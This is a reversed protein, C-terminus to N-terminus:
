ARFTERHTPENRKNMWPTTNLMSCVIYAVLKMEDRPFNPLIEGLVLYAKASWTLSLLMRMFHAAFKRRLQLSAARGGDRLITDRKPGWRRTAGKGGVGESM